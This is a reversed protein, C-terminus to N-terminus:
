QQGGVIDGIYRHMEQMRKGIEGPFAAAQEIPSEGPAMGYPNQELRRRGPTGPTYKRAQEPNEIEWEARKRNTEALQEAAEAEAFRQTEEQKFQPTDAYNFEFDVGLRRIMGEADPNMDFVYYRPATPDFGDVPMVTLFDTDYDEGYATKVSSLLQERLWEGGHMDAHPVYNEPPYRMFSVDGSIGSTGFENKLSSVATKLALENNGNTLPLYYQALDAIRNRYQNQVLPASEGLIGWLRPEGSFQEKVVTPLNEDVFTRFDKSRGIDRFYEKDKESLMDYRTEMQVATAFSQEGGGLAHAIDVANKIRDDRGLADVAAPNIQSLQFYPAIAQARNALVAADGGQNNYYAANLIRAAEKPMFGFQGALLTTRDRVGDKNQLFERETYGAQKDFRASGDAAWGMIHMGFIDNVANDNHDPAALCAGSIVCTAAEGRQTEATRKVRTATYMSLANTLGNLINRKFKEDGGIKTAPTRAVNMIQERGQQIAVDINTENITEDMMSNFGAVYKDYQEGDVIAVIKAKDSPKLTADQELDAKVKVAQEATDVANALEGWNYYNEQYRVQDAMKRADIPGIVNLAHASGLAEKAEDFRGAQMHQDITSFVNAQDDRQKWQAIQGGYKLGYDVNLEDARQSFLNEALPTELQESAAKRAAAEAEQYDQNPQDWATGVVNGDPDTRYPQQAQMWGEMTQQYALLAKNYQKNSDTRYIDTGIEAVTGAVAEVAGGVARGAAVATGPSIRGLGQVPRDYRIEPLRM